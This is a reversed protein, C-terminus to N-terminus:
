LPFVFEIYRFIRPKQIACTVLDIQDYDRARICRRKVAISLLRLDICLDGVKDDGNMQDTVQM